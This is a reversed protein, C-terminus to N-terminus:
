EDRRLASKKLTETPPKLQVEYGECVIAKVLAVEGNAHREVDRALRDIRAVLQNNRSELDTARRNARDLSQRTLALAIGLAAVGTLWLMDRITFRYM